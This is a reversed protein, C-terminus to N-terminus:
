TPIALLSASATDLYVMADVTQLISAPCLPSVPGELAAKVATAKRVGPVICFIRGPLVLAPLTLSIAQTPVEDLAAFHGENWQQTRCAVDLEVLDVLADTEFDAPPDNFALHGNEGIGMVCISPEISQLIAGYRDVEADIDPADGALQHFALPRAWSVLQENLFRRFSASHDAAMGLYEDMHLVHIRSWEIDTRDRLAQLFPLQSPASAFIVGVESRLGLAERTAAAFDDAAARGLDAASLHIQARARGYRRETVPSDAATVARGGV